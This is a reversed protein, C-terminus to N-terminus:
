SNIYTYYQFIIKIVLKSLNNKVEYKTYALITMDARIFYIKKFVQFAM